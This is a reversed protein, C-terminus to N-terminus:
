RGGRLRLTLRGNEPRTVDGDLRPIELPRLRLEGSPPVDPGEAEAGAARFRRLLTVEAHRVGPVGMCLTVLASARVPTGFTLASPDFLGPTGDPRHGPLFARQLAERVHATVYHPDVLVYLAV